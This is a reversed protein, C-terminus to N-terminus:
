ALFELLAQFAPLAVVLRQPEQHLPLGMAHAGESIRPLNGGSFRLAAFAAPRQPAFAALAGFRAQVAAADACELAFGDVWEGLRAYAAQAAQPNADSVLMGAIGQVGNAHGMWEPRWVLEPTFHHCAYVRGAAFQGPILRVTSFRADTAVGDLLVPRSFHQVPQVALGLAQWADHCAPVDAVAYVLGDLGLPSDLIEQRVKDSDRPQGILELYGGPFMVLHNVSGLTHHGRPTITFGLGQLQAHAADIDYHTNLVLHDLRAPINQAPPLTKSPGQTM